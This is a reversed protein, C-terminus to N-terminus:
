AHSSVQVAARWAPGGRGEPSLAPTLPPRAPGPVVVLVSFAHEYGAEGGARGAGQVEAVGIGGDERMVHGAGGPAVEQRRISSVSRSRQRGSYSSASGPCVQAPEAECPVARDVALRFVDGAVVGAKFGKFVCVKEVGARAGAGVDARGKGSWLFADREVDVGAGAAAAGHGGALRAVREAQVKGGCQGKEGDILRFWRLFGTAERERRPLPSPHPCGVRVRVKVSVPGVWALVWRM